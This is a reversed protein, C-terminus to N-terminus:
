ADCRDTNLLKYGVGYVTQIYRDPDDPCLKRRLLSVCKAIAGEEIHSTGWVHELLDAKTRTTGAPQALYSLVNFELKSLNILQSDVTVERAATNIVLSDNLNIEDQNKSIIRRGIADIRALLQNLEFPKVMYNDAGLQFGLVEDNAGVFHGSIMIIGLEGSQYEKSNAIQACISRGDIGQQGLDIDLIVVSPRSESFKALANTGVTEIVVNHGHKQLYEQAQTCFELEDDVLLINM